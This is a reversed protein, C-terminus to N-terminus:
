SEALMAALKKEDPLNDAYTAIVKGKDLVLIRCALRIIQEISHSVMLIPYQKSLEILLEEIESAAYVDLSSTPEDLLIFNPELALTRALCLRQQQGGSLHQAPQELRDAVEDWLKAKVLAHRVRDKIESRSVKAVVKLPLAINQEITTPLVNPSQFVMGVRSRLESLSRYGRKYPYIHELGEGFDMEVTGTTMCHPFTENIRNFARLLTTKGSGSRGAIVTIGLFPSSFTINNLVTGQGFRVSLDTVRLALNM